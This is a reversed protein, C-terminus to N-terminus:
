GAPPKYIRGDFWLWEPTGSADRLLEGEVDKTPGDTVIFRDRATFAIPVAPAVPPSVDYRAALQKRSHTHLMLGDGDLRLEIDEDRSRYMGAYPAVDAPARHQVAPPVDEVGVYHRLWWRTVARFVHEGLPANTFTVVGTGNDPALALQAKQGSRVGGGGHLLIRRGGVLRHIWPMARTMGVAGPVQSRRTERLMRESLLTIPGGLHAGIYRLMDNATTVLGGSSYHCRSIPWPRVPVAKGELLFHGNAFRHSIAEDMFFFARRMGLPELVLRAVAEEYTVGTLVEILRGAAGFSSNSYNWMSGLPTIQALQDFTAVYRALADDGSGTHIYHDGFWGASHTLLHRTTVRASIDADMVRFERMYRRIPADLDLRGADVLRLLATATFTKTISGSQFLTDADVALPHEANTIGFAASAERDAALLAIAVGPVVHERM